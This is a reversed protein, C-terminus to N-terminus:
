INYIEVSCMLMFILFFGMCWGLLHNESRPVHVLSYSRLNVFIWLFILFSCSGVHIFMCRVPRWAGPKYCILDPVFGDPLFISNCVRQRLEHQRGADRKQIGVGVLRLGGEGDAIRSLPCPPARRQGRTRRSSRRSPTPSERSSPRAELWFSMLHHTAVPDPRSL